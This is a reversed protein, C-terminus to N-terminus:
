GKGQSLILHTTHAPVLTGWGGSEVCAQGPGGTDEHGWTTGGWLARVGLSPGRLAPVGGQNSCTSKPSVTGGGRVRGGGVVGVGPM